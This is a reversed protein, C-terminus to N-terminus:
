WLYLLKKKCFWKRLCDQGINESVSVFITNATYIQTRWIDIVLRWLSVGGGGGGLLISLWQFGSFNNVSYTYVIKTFVAVHCYQMPAPPDNM